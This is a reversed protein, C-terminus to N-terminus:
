RLSRLAGSLGARTVRADDLYSAELNWPALPPIGLDTRIVNHEEGVVTGLEYGFRRGRVQAWRPRMDRRPTLPISLFAGAMSVDSSTFFVGLQTDGFWRALQVTGGLDGNVFRGGRATAVLDLPAVALRASGTLGKREDGADDVSWSGQAGLALAGDGPAWLLEAVGGADISRFLGGGVMGWLGRAMPFAQHLMAYEVHPDDHYSRLAGGERLDDSWAFPVDFRVFGTAGPWFPVIVDPRFSVSYDLVGAPTAVFTRLAPALVLATHLTKRNRPRGSIWAAHRGSPALTWRASTRPEGSPARLEALRLGNQKLVIAVDRDGLGAQAIERAVVELGDAEAHNFVTNEYEVVVAEGDLGVRVEEFGLDVLRGELERLAGTADVAGPAANVSPSVQLATSPEASLGVSSPRATDRAGPSASLKADSAPAAGNGRPAAAPVPTRGDPGANLWLPLELTAGWEFTRPERDLASMGIGGVRIPVGIRRLSVSVRLGANVNETDWEALAEVGPLLRLAGGAFAGEMRDPGTGWGASLTAPGVRASAVAYRTQFYSSAGGEDQTGIALALPLGPSLLELPLQLKANFSLDRPGKPSSVDTVRGALELYRLFGFSAVFTRTTSPELRPANTFLLQATGDTQVWASPTMLQGSFGELSPGNEAFAPAGALLAGVLAARVYPSM